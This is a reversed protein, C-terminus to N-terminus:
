CWFRNRRWLSAFLTLDWNDNHSAIFLKKNAVVQFLRLHPAGCNAAFGCIEPGLVYFATFKMYIKIKKDLCPLLRHLDILNGGSLAHWFCLFIDSYSLALWAVSQHCIALSQSIFEHSPISPMTLVSDTNHPRRKDISSAMTCTSHAQGTSPTDLSCSFSGCGICSPSACLFSPLPENICPGSPVLLKM